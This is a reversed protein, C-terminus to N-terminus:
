FPGSIYILSGYTFLVFKANYSYVFIEWSRILNKIKKPSKTTLLNGMYVADFKKYVILIKPWLSNNLFSFFGM